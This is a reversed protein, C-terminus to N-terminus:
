QLNLQTLPTKFIAVSGVSAIGPSRTIKGFVTPAEVMRKDM